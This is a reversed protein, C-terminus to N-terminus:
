TLTSNKLHYWRNKVVPALPITVERLSRASRNASCNGVAESPNRSANSSGCVSGAHCPDPSEGNPKTPARSEPKVVRELCDPCIGHSFQAESHEAIYVEVKQWYNKDTRISQCYCCIPVLGELRKVNALAIELEGIRAILEAQLQLVRKGVSLRAQLEKHDFPKTLYDDAGAELGTVVDEACEKTTLMLIYSHRSQKQARAQRCTDAGNRGPLMRDLIALSPANPQQLIEWAQTGVHAIVAEYGWSALLAQLVHCSVTEDEAILIRM